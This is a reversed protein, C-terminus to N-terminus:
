INPEPEAQYEDWKEKEEQEQQWRDGDDYDEPKQDLLFKLHGATGVWDFIAKRM